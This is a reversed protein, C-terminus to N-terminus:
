ATLVEAPTPPAEPQYIVTYGDVHKDTYTGGGTNDWTMTSSVAGTVGPYSEAVLLLFDAGGSGDGVAVSAVESWGASYTHATPWIATGGSARFMTLAAFDPVDATAPTTGGNGDAGNAQLNNTIQANVSTSDPQGVTSLGSWEEIRWAWRGSAAASLPWSTEGSPQNDRRWWYWTAAHQREEFWPPDYSQSQVALAGGNTAVFLVLTSGDTTPNPLAPTLSSAAPDVIGSNSQVRWTADVM